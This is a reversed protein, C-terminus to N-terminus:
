ARIGRPRPDVGPRELEYLAAFIKGDQAEQRGGATLPDAPAILGSLENRLTNGATQSWPGQDQQRETDADLARSVWQAAVIGKNFYASVHPTRQGTITM